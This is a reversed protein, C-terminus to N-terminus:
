AKRLVTEIGISMNQLQAFDAWCVTLIRPVGSWFFVQRWSLLSQTLHLPGHSYSYCKYWQCWFPKAPLAVKDEPQQGWVGDDGQSQQTNLKIRGPGIHSPHLKILWPLIFYVTDELSFIYVLLTMLLLNDDLCTFAPDGWYQSIEGYQPEWSSQWQQQSHEFRSFLLM